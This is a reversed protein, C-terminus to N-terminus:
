GRNGASSRKPCNARVVTRFNHDKGNQGTMKVAALNTHNCLNRSNDLLGKKGGQMMLVFQSIPADPTADFTTRIGGNISDIRGVLDVNIQGGLSVVLDPLLHSSSRLYVPGELPADLLPTVVKAKGYISAKPCIDAAFQVRTCITRIHSQDLFESHPLAVSARAINAYSGKPYTVVARLAPNDSRKTGGNLKLSLRPKFGLLSCGGVQFRDSVTSSSGTTGLVNATVSKVECNTPALTFNPRDLSVRLDRMDLPIGSLITPLPDAEATVQATESNVRLAIRNVVVGLDFPGALAPIIAVLSLPAGKYPGALYVPGGTYFPAPGAGAGATVTGVKSAQACSPSAVEAAGQGPQSLAAAQAIGAESCYPIGALKAVLGLPTTTTLGAFEATADARTLRLHFPSYTGATANALGASLRPELAGSPCPGAPGSTIQFADGPSVNAGEPATWPVMTTATTFRGCSMPTRLPARAGEFFDFQFDEVPVQPSETVTTSLQGTVPDPSVKAALKVVIGTQRDELVIYIAILSRFPNDGQKALFVSGTIQHDLAPVNASVTGIKSADPCQVAETNFHIPSQGPPTSLGIQDITCAALGDASAPNVNLGAPLRVTVDRLDAEGLEEPVEHESQPMHLNFHLGTPSDAINTTPRAEITPSFDPASCELPAPEQSSATAGTIPRAWTAFSMRTLLPNACWSPTRLFSRPTGKEVPCALKTLACAARMPDHSAEWPTGWISIMGGTILEAQPINTLYATSGFDGDSRIRTNIYVPVGVVVFGLQAPMGKPPVLNYVASQRISALGNLSGLSAVGVASDAPCRNPRVPFTEGPPVVVHEETFQQATCRGIATPNAALGPPLAVEIEKLEGEAPVFYGAGPPGPKLNVAFATTYQYPHSDAATASTGDAGTLEAKFENFGATAEEDSAQNSAETSKPSAGGGEVEVQNTLMGSVSPPLGVKIQLLLQYGPYLKAPSFAPLLANTVECRVTSVGGEVETDCGPASIDENHGRSTFLEVQKVILGAPLTDTITVPSQNTVESGTNTVFIEYRAEGSEDGTTFNTPAALSQISWAPTAVAASAAVPASLALAAAAAAAL